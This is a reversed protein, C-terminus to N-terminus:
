KIFRISMKDAIKMAEFVPFGDENIVTAVSAKGDLVYKRAIGIASAIPLNRDITKKEFDKLIKCM